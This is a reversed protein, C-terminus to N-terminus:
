RLVFVRCGPVPHDLQIMLARWIEGDGAEPRVNVGRPDSLDEGELAYTDVVSLTPEENFEVVVWHPPKTGGSQWRVVYLPNSVDAM